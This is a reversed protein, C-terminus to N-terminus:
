GASEPQQRDLGSFLTGAYVAFFHGEGHDYLFSNFLCGVAMAVVLGQAAFGYPYHLAVSEKLQRYFLLLFGGLGLVGLQGMILLYENHPNGTLLSPHDYAKKAYEGAFSGTGAGALPHDAIVRLSTQWMILRQGISSQEPNSAALGIDNSRSQIAPSTLLVVTIAAVASAAFVLWREKLYAWYQYALLLLLAAFIVHGTRGGVMFMLNFAALSAAAGWLLRQRFGQSRLLHHAMLYVAFALFLGFAIRSKFPISPSAEYSQPVPWPPVWGLYMAFSVLLAALIAAMFAYYARLRWHEENFVSIALPLLLLERYQNLVSFATPLSASSYGTGAAFLGFLLLSAVAVPNNRIRRWKDRYGGSISYVVLLLFLVVNVLATPFILVFVM